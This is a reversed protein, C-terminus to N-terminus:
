FHFVDGGGIDLEGPVSAVVIREEVDLFGYGRLTRLAQTVPTDHAFPQRLGRQNLAAVMHASEGTWHEALSDYTLDLGGPTTFHVIMTKAPYDPCLTRCTGPLVEADRSAFPSTFSTVGCLQILTRVELLGAPSPSVLKQSPFRPMPFKAAQPKHPYRALFAAEHLKGILMADVQGARREHQIRRPRRLATQNGMRVRIM